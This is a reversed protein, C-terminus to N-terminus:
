RLGWGKYSVDEFQERSSLIFFPVLLTTRTHLNHKEGSVIMTTGPPVLNVRM